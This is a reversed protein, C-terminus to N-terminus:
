KGASVKEKEPSAKKEAKGSPLDAKRVAPPPTKRVVPVTKVKKVEPPSKFVKRLLNESANKKKEAALLKQLDEMKRLLELRESAFREKDLTHRIQQERVQAQSQKWRADLSQLKANHLAQLEKRQTQISAEFDKKQKELEKELRAANARFSKSEAILTVSQERLSAITRRTEEQKLVLNERERAGKELFYWAGSAVAGLILLFLLFAGFWFCSMKKRTIAIGELERIREDMRCFSDAIMRTIEESQRRAILAFENESGEAQCARSSVEKKQGSPVNGGNERNEALPEMGDSPSPSPPPVFEAKIPYKEGLTKEIQAFSQAQNRLSAIEQLVLLASEPYVKRKGQPISLIYQGYRSLWDNITTRPVGLLEALEMVTYNKSNEM